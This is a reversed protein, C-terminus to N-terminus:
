ADDVGYASATAVWQHKWAWNDRMYQSFESETFVVEEGIMLELMDVVTEYDDTHDVPIPLRAVASPDFVKGNKIADLMQETKEQAALYYASWAREFVEHHTTLNAKIREIANAKTVKINQNM